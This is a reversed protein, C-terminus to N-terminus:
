EGDERIYGDLVDKFYFCTEQIDKEGIAKKTDVIDRKVFAPAEGSVLNFIQSLFATAYSGKGLSFQLIIGEPVVETTHIDVFERTPVERHKRPIDGLPNLNNFNPPYMNTKELIDRYMNWDSRTHSLFLPLVDPIDKGSCALQSLKHNFLWSGVAYVWMRVQGQVTNLAGIYDDPHAQLHKIMSLEIAFTQPFPGFIDEMAYWDGLVEKAKDRLENAYVNGRVGHETLHRCVSQEYEGRVIDAGVRFNMFRPAGFRQIYYFNLFGHQIIERLADAFVSSDAAIADNDTRLLLTFRNGRLKGTEVVGKGPTFDKLFYFPSSLARIDRFSINRFSIRQATIAHKDKIGAFRIQNEGCGLREEIDAIAEPTSVGCKVLTAYITPVEEFDVEDYVREDEKEITCITGDPMIEEVIFDQPMFKVYAFPFREKNPIVIGVHKLMDAGDIFTRVPFKEPYLTRLNKWRRSEESENKTEKIM